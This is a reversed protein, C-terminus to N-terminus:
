RAVASKFGKSKLYGDTPLTTEHMRSAFSEEMKFFALLEQIKVALDSLGEAGGAVREAASAVEGIGSRINEGAESTVNVNTAINRVAEAIEESSAAQEESVAALDQTAASIHKLYTIMSSIVEETERSLDKASDSEKANQLSMSVVIDLDGTITNALEAINKAAVNSDEALKRVEEAVVAFGRGAEGARAAEIAANLALLNTQDAIGGIQEVFNQIQRTRQGLEQVSKATASANEAVGEIGSTARRVASMGNEGERMADDVKRAIETGKEATAQAGAAVEEVSVNVEEGVRSLSKLNTGMEDVNSRFEEVSANTQQAMSSFEQATESMNLSADKISGIIHKLNDAMHQLGRGMEGLEDKGAVPFRSALDGEAFVKVGGQVKGIPGTIMRSIAYAMVIGTIAALLWSVTIKTVGRVAEEMSSIETEQCMQKMKEEMANLESVYDEEAKAIDGGTLLRDIIDQPINPSKSLEMAENQMKVCYARTEMLKNFLTRIEQPMDTKAYEDYFDTIKKRNETIRAEYNKIKIEDDAYFMSLIMRRNQVSVSEAEGMKMAPLAFDRYLRNMDRSIEKSTLYGTVAIVTMLALMISVLILIKTMTRLDRFWQMTPVGKIKVRLRIRSSM